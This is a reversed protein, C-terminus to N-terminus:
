CIWGRHKKTPLALDYATSHSVDIVVVVYIATREIAELPAKIRVVATENLPEGTTNKKILLLPRHWVNSVRVKPAM